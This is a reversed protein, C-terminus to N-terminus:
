MALVKRLLQEASRRGRQKIELAYLYLRSSRQGDRLMGTAVASAAVGSGIM